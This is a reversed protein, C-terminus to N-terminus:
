LEENVSQLEERSTELEEATSRLEENTDGAIRRELRSARRDADRIAPRVLSAASQNPRTRKSGDSSRNTRRRQQSANPRRANRNPESESPEFVVLLFGRATDEENL